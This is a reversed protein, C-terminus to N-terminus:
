LYKNKQLRKIMSEWPINPHLEGKIFAEEQHQLHLSSCPLHEFWPAGKKYWSISVNRTYYFLILKNSSTSISSTWVRLPSCTPSGLSQREPACSNIDTCLYDETMELLGPKHRSCYGEEFPKWFVMPTSKEIDRKLPMPKLWVLFSKM